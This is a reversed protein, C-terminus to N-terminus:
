RSLETRRDYHKRAAENGRGPLKRADGLSWSRDGAVGDAKAISRMKGMSVADEMGFAGKLRL